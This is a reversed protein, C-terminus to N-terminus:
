KLSKSYTQLSYRTVEIYIKSDTGLKIIGIYDHCNRRTIINIKLIKM